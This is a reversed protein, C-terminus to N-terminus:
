GWFKWWPKEEDAPVDIFGSEIVEELARIREKLVEMEKPDFQGGGGLFRAM